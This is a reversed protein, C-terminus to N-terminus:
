ASFIWLSLTNCCFMKVGNLATDDGGGQNSEVRTQLGCIIKGSPCDQTQWDGDGWPRLATHWSGDCRMDLNTAGVDKKEHPWGGASWVHLLDFGTYGNTCVQSSYHWDGWSGTKSCKQPFLLCFNIRSYYTYFKSMRSAFTM